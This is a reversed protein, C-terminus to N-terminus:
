WKPSNRGLCFFNMLVKPFVSEWVLNEGQMRWPPLGESVKILREKEWEYKVKRGREKKM